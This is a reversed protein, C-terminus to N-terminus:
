KLKRATVEKFESFFHHHRFVDESGAPVHLTIHGFFAGELAETLYAYEDPNASRLTIDRIPCHNFAESGVMRVGAPLTLRELRACGFFAKDGISTLGEPLVIEKLFTFGWYMENEIETIGQPVVCRGDIIEYHHYKIKLTLRDEDMVTDFDYGVLELLEPIHEKLDNYTDKDFTLKKCSANKMDAVIEITRSSDMFILEYMKERDNKWMIWRYPFLRKIFKPLKFWFTIPKRIAFHGYGGYGRANVIVGKYRKQFGPFFEGELYACTGTLYSNFKM